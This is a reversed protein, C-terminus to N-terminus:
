CVWVDNHSIPPFLLIDLNTGLDTNLQSGTAM